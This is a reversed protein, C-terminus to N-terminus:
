STLLDDLLRVMLMSGSRWTRHFFLFLELADPAISVSFHELLSARRCIM